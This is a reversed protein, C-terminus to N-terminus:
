RVGALPGGAITHNVVLSEHDGFNRYALRFMLRDGLSDVKEGPTPEPICALSIARNCIESFPAVPIVVPGKFSSNVPNGFDVHFHFLNLDTSDAIEVFFNPSGTPPLTKGDLDSPLLSAVRPPKQFCIKLIFGGDPLAPPNEHLM